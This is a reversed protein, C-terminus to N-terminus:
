FLRPLDRQGALVRAVEIGEERPRYFIVYNGVAFSRVGPSLQDRRRGMQPYEALTQCQEYLRDLFRDAADERDEAIVLWIDLLDREARPSLRVGKM